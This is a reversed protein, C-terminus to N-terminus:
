KLVEDLMAQWVRKAEPPYFRGAFVGAAQDATSGASIMGRSPERLAVVAVRAIRLCRKRNDPNMFWSLGMNPEESKAIEYAVHELIDTMATGRGSDKTWDARGM